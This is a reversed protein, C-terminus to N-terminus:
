PCPLELKRLLEEGGEPDLTMVEKRDHEVQLFDGLSCAVASRLLYADRYAPRLAVADDAFQRAFTVEGADYLVQAVALRAYAEDADFTSLAELRRLITRAHLLVLEEGSRESLSQLLRRADDPRDQLIFLAYLYLARSSIKAPDDAIASAFWWTAADRDGRRVYIMAIEERAFTGIASGDEIRLFAVLAARDRGECVLSAGLLYDAVPDDDMGRLDRFVSSARGCEGREYLLVGERVLAERTSPFFWALIGAQEYFRLAEAVNGSRELSVGALLRANAETRWWGACLTFLACVGFLVPTLFLRIRRRDDM